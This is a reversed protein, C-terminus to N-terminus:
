PIIQETRKNRVLIEQVREKLPLLQNIEIINERFAHSFKEKFAWYIEQNIKKLLIHDEQRDHVVLFIVAQDLIKFQQILIHHQSFVIDDLDEDPFLKLGFNTMAMIFGTILVADLDIKAFDCNLLPTGNDM